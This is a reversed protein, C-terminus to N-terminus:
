EPEVRARATEVQTELTEAQIKLESENTSLHELEMEAKLLRRTMQEANQLVSELAQIREDVIAGLEKQIHELRNSVQDTM